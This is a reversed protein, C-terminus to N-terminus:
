ERPLTIRLLTTREARPKLARNSLQAPVLFFTGPVFVVGACEIAGTLCFVIAFEGEPAVARESKLEWKEIEFLPDHVLSDGEPEILEPKVDDFDISRLSQAIHLARPKGDAEVRNWDFVRYTTDSNQQVEIIVNGAGIAHLRGSPLFMADGERVRVRHVLSEADGRALASEFDAASTPQDLGVFLEAGPTAAGIYWCETKPEGGLEAAIAAPPHVQLSLRQHADLLKLLLPFRPADAVAGFIERRHDTWLEHLTKGRLPGDHVVSQAEPRDVIEWSEGINVSPPLKKGYLAELRRGGWIREMFLPEFVLPATLTLEPMSACFIAACKRQLWRQEQLASCRGNPQERMAIARTM